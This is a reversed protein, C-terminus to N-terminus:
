LYYIITIFLVYQLAADLRSSTLFSALKIYSKLNIIFVASKYYIVSCGLISFSSTETFKVQIFHATMLASQVSEVSNSICVTVFM